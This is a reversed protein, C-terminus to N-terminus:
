LIQLGFVLYVFNRTQYSNYLGQQKQKGPTDNGELISLYRSVENANRTQHKNELVMINQIWKSHFHMLIQFHIRDVNKFFVVIKNPNSIYEELLLSFLLVPKHEV